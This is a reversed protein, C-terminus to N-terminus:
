ILGRREFEEEFEELKVRIDADSVNFTGEPYTAHVEIRPLLKIWNLWKPVRKYSSHVIHQVSCVLEGLPLDCMHVVICDTSMWFNDEPVWGWDPHATVTEPPRPKDKTLHALVRYKVKLRANEPDQVFLNDLSLESYNEPRKRGSLKKCFEDGVRSDHKPCAALYYVQKDPRTLEYETEAGYGCGKVCCLQFPHISEVPIHTAM